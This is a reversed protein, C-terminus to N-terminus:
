VNDGLIRKKGNPGADILGRLTTGNPRGRYKGGVDGCVKKRKYRTHLSARPNIIKQPLTTEKGGSGRTGRKSYQKFGSKPGWSVYGNV